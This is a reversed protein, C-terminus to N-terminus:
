YSNLVDMIEKCVFMQNRKKGTNELLVGKEVLDNVIKGATSLHVGCITAVDAKRVYPNIFLSDVLRITNLDIDMAHYRRRIEYLSDILHISSNSQEILADLFLDMWGQFDDCERVRNLSRIYEDRKNNFYGSLYLVPYELVKNRNLILMILLRGMRGNGDTFPHITEFQYHSLAATMLTTENPSNIYEYLNRMKWYVSEPPMPVFTATDVDDGRNGVFVQVERYKGPSKNEGRVGNLLIKHLELILSEEITGDKTSTAHKLATMYNRVEMNDLLKQPDKEEVRESKYIDEMTTGTGEIASSKTSEMLIFPALLIGREQESMQSVKGDLKSLNIIATEAKKMIKRDLEIEFPLDNPWFYSFGGGNSYRVEGSIIPHYEEERM